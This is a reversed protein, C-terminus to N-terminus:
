GLLRRAFAAYCHAAALVQQVDVREDPQHALRDDGPGFIITPVGTPPQLVAADTYYTLGRVTPEVGLQEILSQHFARVAPADAPTEVPPLNNAVRVELRLGEAAAEQDHALSLMADILDNHRQGPLTRLDISAECRDPVVNTKVGGRITGVNVTPPALLPHPTHEFRLGRVACLLEILHDIANVGLHPMSGHATKGHAVLELWLAGRHALGLNLNTPEGVVLCEVGRMGGSELFHKAGFCDVEEGVVGVLRLRGRLRRAAGAEALDRMAALMAALGSKMDVAGRGHLVGDVIDGSLPDHEWAQEGPPVTDLHACFLLTPGEIEGPLSVIVNSRGEAVPILEAALGWTRAQEVVVEAVSQEDGPPNYSQTRILRQLFDIMEQDPPM